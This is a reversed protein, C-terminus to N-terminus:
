LHQITLELQGSGEGFATVASVVAGVSGGSANAVNGATVATAAVTAGSPTMNASTLAMVGGTVSVGNVQATLTAAKAATTAAIGVRVLASVLKFPFPVGIALVEANALASLAPIPIILTSLGNVQALKNLDSGDILRPGSIFQPLANADAAM